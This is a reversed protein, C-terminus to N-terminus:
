FSDKHNKKRWIVIYFFAIPGLSIFFFEDYLWTEGKINVAMKDFILMRYGLRIKIWM